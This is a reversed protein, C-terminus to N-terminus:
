SKEQSFVTPVITNRFLLTEFHGGIKFLEKLVWLKPLLSLM